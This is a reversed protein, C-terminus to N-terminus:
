TCARRPAEAVEETWAVVDADAEIALRCSTARHAAGMVLVPVDIGRRRLEAAEDATAVALWTAGGGACGGRRRGPGHGYGDAKVVACLPKPSGRATASSQASTSALSRRARSWERRSPASCTSARSWAWSAGTRSWPCATTAADRPDAAGGGAREHGARGHRPRPDDHGRGHLRVGQAPPGRLPEAARPLGHRRVPQHLAAPPPRGPRGAAGPRGRDRDRRLRGDDDVVPVGPCSTSACCRGRRGRGVHRARDRPPTWSRQHPRADAM